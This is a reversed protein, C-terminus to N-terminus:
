STSLGKKTRILRSGFRHALSTMGFSGLVILVGLLSEQSVSSTYNLHLDERENASERPKRWWRLWGPWRRATSDADLVSISGSTAAKRYKHCWFTVPQSTAQPADVRQLAGWARISIEFDLRTLARLVHPIPVTSTRPTNCARPYPTCASKLESEGGIAVSKRAKSEAPLRLTLQPVRPHPLSMMQKGASCVDQPFMGFVSAASDLWPLSSRFGVMYQSVNLGCAKRTPQWHVILH